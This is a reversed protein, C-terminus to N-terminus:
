TIVHVRFGLRKVFCIRLLQEYWNTATSNTRLEVRLLTEDRRSEVKNSTSNSCTCVIKVTVPTYAYNYM